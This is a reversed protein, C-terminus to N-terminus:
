QLAACLKTMDLADPDYIPHTGAVKALGNDFIVLGADLFVIGLGPVVQHIIPGVQKGATFTPNPFFTWHGTGELRKSPDSANYFITVSDMDMIVKSPTTTSKGYYSTMTGGQTVEQMVTFGPCSGIFTFPGYHVYPIPVTVPPAALVPTVVLACIVLTVLLIPIRRKM